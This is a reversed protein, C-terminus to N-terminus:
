LMGEEVIVQLTTEIYKLPNFGKYIIYMQHFPLSLARQTVLSRAIGM